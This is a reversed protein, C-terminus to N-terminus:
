HMFNLQSTCVVHDQQSEIHRSIGRWERCTAHFEFPILEHLGLLHKCEVSATVSDTNEDLTNM